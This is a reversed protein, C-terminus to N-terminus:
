QDKYTFRLYYKRRDALVVELQYHEGSKFGGHEKLDIAYKNLGNQLRLSPLGKIKNDPEKLAYVSYSLLGEGYDNNIAFKLQQKAVYYDGNFFAKLIRYSEENEASDQKEDCEISFTWIDSKQVLRGDIIYHVQWAYRLGKQLEPLHSPYILRTGKVDPVNIIPLNFSLAEVALQGKKQEALLVRYSANPDFPMPSQWVLTPKTNCIKEKDDPDLLLLPTLPFLSHTFCNEFFDPLGSPKSGILTLEYCYEYEGEPIRGTSQTISALENSAYKFAMNEMFARSFQQQGKRIQIVPVTAELVKGYRDERLTIKLRATLDATSSSITQFNFIGELNRGHLAPQFIINVQAVSAIDLLLVVMLFFFSSYKKM